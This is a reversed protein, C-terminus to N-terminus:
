HHLDLLPQACPFHLMYVFPFLSLSPLLDLHRTAWQPTRLLPPYVLLVGHELYALLM